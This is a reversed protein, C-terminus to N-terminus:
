ALEPPASLEPAVSAPPRWRFCVGQPPRAGAEEVVAATAEGVPLLTSLAAIFVTAPGQAAGGVTLSFRGDTRCAM